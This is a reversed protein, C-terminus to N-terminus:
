SDYSCSSHHYRSENLDNLSIWDLKTTDFMITQRGQRNIEQIGIPAKLHFANGGTLVIFRSMVAALAFGRRRHIEAYEGVIKYTMGFPSTMNELKYIKDRIVYINRGIVISAAKNFKLSTTNINWGRMTRKDEFVVKWRNNESSLQICAARQPDIAIVLKM